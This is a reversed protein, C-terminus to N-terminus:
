HCIHVIAVVSVFNEPEV